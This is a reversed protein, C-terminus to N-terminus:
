SQDDTDELPEHPVPDGSAVRRLFARANNLSEHIAGLGGGYHAIIISRLHLFAAEARNDAAAVAAVAASVQASLGGVREELAGIRRSLKPDAPLPRGCERCPEDDSM